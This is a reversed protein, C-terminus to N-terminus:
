AHHFCVSISSTCHAIFPVLRRSPNKLNGQSLLLITICPFRPRNLFFLLLLIIIIKKERKGPEKRFLWIVNERKM